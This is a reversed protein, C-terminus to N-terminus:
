DSHVEDYRLNFEFQYTNLANAHKADTIKFELPEYHVGKYRSETRIICTGIRRIFWDRKHLKNESLFNNNNKM